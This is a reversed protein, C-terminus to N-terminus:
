GAMRRFKRFLRGDIALLGLAILGMGGAHSPGLTENLFLVGLLIAGVPVLLTVLLLNTAGARKLLEFYLIYAFATSVLALTVLAAVTDLGPVPLTWPRDVLLSVPLLMLSSATVQGAATQAPHIGMAKFRRGFVGGFAYSLAAGILALQGWFTGSIGDALDSGLMLAVGGFGLAIGLLRLPTIREDDTLFHAVLVGFVPTSANLISALGSAIQTQGYVILSFPVANNLFGMILFARLIKWDRPMGLGFLPLLLQMALAAIGVRCLVITFPPIADIVLEVLFFSSSWVASLLILLGWEAPGMTLNVKANM